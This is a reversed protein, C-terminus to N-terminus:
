LVSLKKAVYGIISLHELTIIPVPAWAASKNDSWKTIHGTTQIDECELYENACSWVFNM